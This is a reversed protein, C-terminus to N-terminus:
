CVAVVVTAVSMTVMLAPFPSLVTVFEPLTVAVDPAVARGAFPDADRAVALEVATCVPSSASVIKLVEVMEDVAMDEAVDGVIERVAVLPVKEGLVVCDVAVAM